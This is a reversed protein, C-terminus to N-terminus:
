AHDANRSSEAPAGLAADIAARARDESEPMLHAYTRLTFGPDHHGLYESVARVSVGNELLASAYHHRLAHMGNERNRELGAALLAPKWGNHTFYARTLPGRHRNTFLLDVSREEGGPERWPLRMTSTGFRQVHEAVAQAVVDPLPVERERGGKPPALVVQNEVRRLQQRVHVVRRLFDVADLTLGFIEGQRLGCGAGLVPMARFEDPHGEVVRHVTDMPWPIVRRRDVRPAKVSSVSCPNSPILGDEVAASLMTSLNSLLLRCYSAAVEAQRSRVWAQITSPKLHRLERDGISPLIHTRVRSEMTERTSADFTQAELWQTAFDALTIRGAKPDVYRGTVLDATVQDLWRQADVKRTFTKSRERGDPDRYRAQWRRQHEKGRDRIHAM